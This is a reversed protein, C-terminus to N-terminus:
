SKSADKLYGNGVKIEEIEDMQIWRIVGTEPACNVYEWRAEGKKLVSVEHWTMFKRDAGWDKAHKHAGNFIALHSKHRKAWKELDELNRFFGAGCTEKMEEYGKEPDVNRLFRLGVTGTDTPNSWLYRMGEMLVPELTTEYATAEAELCQTWIQGSRIHVINDYSSGKLRQGLGWPVNEPPKLSSESPPSYLDYASAPMRDRAAGWYASLTHETRETNPLSGLGPRHHLNAYNTELREVPTTFTETWLGISARNDLPLHHFIESLNLELMADDWPRKDTWYAVWIRSGPIDFGEQVTFPDVAAPAHSPKKLWLEIEEIACNWAADTAPDSRSNHQQVGVYTTYIIEVEEPLKLQWRPVPPVWNKPQTLPYKRM